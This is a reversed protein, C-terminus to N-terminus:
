RRGFQQRADVGAMLLWEVLMERREAVGFCVLAAGLEPDTVLLHSLMRPLHQSELWPAWAAVARLSRHILPCVLRSDM